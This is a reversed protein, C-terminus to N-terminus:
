DLSENGVNAKAERDAIAGQILAQMNEQAQRRYEEKALRTLKIAGLGAGTVTLILLATFGLARESYALAQARKAPHHPTPGVILPRAIMLSITALLM